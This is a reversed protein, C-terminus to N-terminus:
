SHSLVMWITKQHSLMKNILNIISSVIISMEVVMAVTINRVQVDSPWVWNSILKNLIMCHCPVIGPTILLLIFLSVLPVSVLCIIFFTAVSSNQRNRIWNSAWICVILHLMARSAVVVCVQEVVSLDVAIL